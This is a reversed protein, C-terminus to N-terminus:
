HAPHDPAVPFEIHTEHNKRVHAVLADIAETATQGYGIAGELTSKGNFKSSVIWARWPLPWDTGHSRYELTVGMFREGLEHLQRLPDTMGQGGNVLPPPVPYIGRRFAPPENRESEKLYIPKM